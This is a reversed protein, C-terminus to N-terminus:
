LHIIPCEYRIHNLTDTGIQGIIFFASMQNVALTLVENMLNPTRGGSFLISTVSVDEQAPFIREVTLGINTSTRQQV